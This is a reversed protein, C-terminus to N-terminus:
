SFITSVNVSRLLINEDESGIEKGKILVMWTLYKYYLVSTTELIVNDEAHVQLSLFTADSLM